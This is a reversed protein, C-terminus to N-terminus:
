KKLEINKWWEPKESYLTYKKLELDMKEIQEKFNKLLLNESIPKHDLVKQIEERILLVHDFEYKFEIFDDEHIDSFTGILEKYMSLLNAPSYETLKEVESLFKTYDKWYKEDKQIEM